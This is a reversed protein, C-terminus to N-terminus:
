APSVALQEGSVLNHKMAFATLQSRNPHGLKNGFNNRHTEATKVSINLENAVEKMSRGQAYLTLVAKERLTLSHLPDLDERIDRLQASMSPPLYFGGTRITRIAYFLEEPPDQKLIFGNLRMRKARVAHEISGHRTLIAIKTTPHLQRIEVAASFTDLGPM